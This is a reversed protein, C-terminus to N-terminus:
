SRIGLASSRTVSSGDDQPYSPPDWVGTTTSPFTTPPSCTQQVLDLLSGRGNGDCYMYTAKSPDELVVFDVNGKLGCIVHPVVVYVRQKNLRKRTRENLDFYRIRQGISLENNLFRVVSGESTLRDKQDRAVKIAM